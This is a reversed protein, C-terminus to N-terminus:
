ERVVKFISSWIGGQEVVRESMIRFGYKALIKRALSKRVTIFVASSGDRLVERLARLLSDYFNAM